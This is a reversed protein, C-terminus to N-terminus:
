VQKPQKGSTLYFHELTPNAPARLRTKEKVNLLAALPTAVYSLFPSRSFPRDGKFCRLKKTAGLSPPSLAALEPLKIRPRLKGAVGEKAQKRQGFSVFSGTNM